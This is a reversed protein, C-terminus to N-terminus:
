RAHQAGEITRQAHLAYVGHEVDVDGGLAICLWDGLGAHMDRQHGHIVFMHDGTLSYKVSHTNLFKLVEWDNSQRVQVRPAFEV